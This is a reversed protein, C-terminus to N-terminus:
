TKWTKGSWLFGSLGKRDFFSGKRRQWVKEIWEFMINENMWGKENACVVVDSPFNGKPLTKRKFIILPKLQDGNAACALICTFTMKEHVTTLISVTKTGTEDVTRNAPCDFM